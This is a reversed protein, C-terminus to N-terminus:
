IQERQSSSPTQGEEKGKDAEEKSMQKKKDKRAIKLDRMEKQIEKLRDLKPGASQTSNYLNAGEDDLDLQIEDPLPQQLFDVIVDSTFEGELREGGM